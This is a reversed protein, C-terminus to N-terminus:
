EVYIVDGHRLALKSSAAKNGVLEAMRVRIRLRQPTKRVVYIHDDDAFETLGGARALVSLLTEDAEIQFQGPERVEGLVAVMPARRALVAVSIQPRELVGRYATELRRALEEPSLRAAAVDGLLPQLYRGDSRVVHEGSLNDHSRVVVAIRDGPGIPQTEAPPDQPLQSAWVYPERHGGCAAIFMAVLVLWVVAYV